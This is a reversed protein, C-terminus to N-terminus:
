ARRAAKRCTIDATVTYSCNSLSPSDGQPLGTM